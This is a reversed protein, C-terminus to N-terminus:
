RERINTDWSSSVVLALRSASIRSRRAPPPLEGLLERAKLWKYIVPRMAPHPMGTYDKWREVTPLSVDFADSIEQDDIKRLALVCMDWEDNQRMNRRECFWNHVAGFPWMIAWLPIYVVAGAYILWSLWRQVM